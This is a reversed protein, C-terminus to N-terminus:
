LLSEGNLNTTLAETMFDFFPRMALLGATVNAAFDKAFVDNPTYNRKLLFQKKRLYDIMPDDKDFDKPATKLEDGWLKGDFQTIIDKHNMVQTFEDANLSIEQRIRLLDEKNPDFFGGGIFTDQPSLHVYYGGRNHPQKRQIYCGFHTKYPTKDKSFRLDRYIRYIKIPALSDHQALESYINKFFVDALKKAMEYSSKHNDFWEKHNNKSLETLYDFIIQM